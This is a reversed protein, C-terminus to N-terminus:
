KFKTNGVGKEEYYVSIKGVVATLRIFFSTLEGQQSQLESPMKLGRDKAYETTNEPHIITSNGSHPAHFKM